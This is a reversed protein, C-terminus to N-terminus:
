DDDSSSSASREQLKSGKGYCSQQSSGPGSSPNGSGGSPSSSATPLSSAFSSFATTAKQSSAPSASPQQGGVAGGAAFVNESSPIVYAAPQEAVLAGGPEVVTGDVGDVATLNTLSKTRVCQFDVHRSKAEEKEWSLRMFPRQVYNYIVEPRAGPRRRIKEKHTPYGEPHFPSKCPSSHPPCSRIRRRPPSHKGEIGLRIKKLGREKLVHKAM